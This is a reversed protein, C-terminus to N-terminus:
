YRMSYRINRIKNTRFCSKNTYDDHHGLGRIAARELCSYGTRVRWAGELAGAGSFVVCSCCQSPTKAPSFVTKKDM